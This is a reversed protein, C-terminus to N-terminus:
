HVVYVQRTIWEFENEVKQEIYAYERANVGELIIQWLGIM